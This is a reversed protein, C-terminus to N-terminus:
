SYYRVYTNIKHTAGIDIMESDYCKEDLSIVNGIGHGFSDKVNEFEPTAKFYIESDIGM